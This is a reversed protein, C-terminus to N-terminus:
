CNRKEDGRSTENKTQRFIFELVSFSPKASLLLFDIEMTEPTKSKPQNKAAKAMANSPRNWTLELKKEGSTGRATTRQPMATTANTRKELVM